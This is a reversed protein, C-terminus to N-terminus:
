DGHGMGLWRSSQRGTYVLVLRTEDGWVTPWKVEPHQDSTSPAKRNLIWREYWEDLQHTQSTPPASWWSIFTTVHICKKQIGLFPQACVM